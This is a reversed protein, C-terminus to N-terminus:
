AGPTRQNDGLYPWQIVFMCLVASAVLKVPFALLCLFLTSYPSPMRVAGPCWMLCAERSASGALHAFVLCFKIESFMLCCHRCNKFSLSNELSVEPVGWERQKECSLCIETKLKWWRIVISCPMSRCSVIVFLDSLHYCHHSGSFSIVWVIRAM